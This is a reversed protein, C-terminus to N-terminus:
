NLGLKDGGNVTELAFFSLTLLDFSNFPLVHPRSSVSCVVKVTRWRM